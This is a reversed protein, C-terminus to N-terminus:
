QHLSVKRWMDYYLLLSHAREPRLVALPKYVSCPLLSACISISNTRPECVPKCSAELCDLWPGVKRVYVDM